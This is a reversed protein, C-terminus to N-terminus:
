PTMIADHFQFRIYRGEALLEGDRSLRGPVLGHSDGLPEDDRQLRGHSEGQELRQRCCGVLDGAVERWTRHIHPQLAPLRLEDHCRGGGLREGLSPLHRRWGASCRGWWGLSFVARHRPDGGAEGLMQLVPDLLGSVAAPQRDVAPEDPGGRGREVTVGGEAASSVASSGGGAALVEGAPDPLGAAARRPRGSIDGAGTAPGSVQVGPPLVMGANSVGSGIRAVISTVTPSRRMAARSRVSVTTSTRGLSGDWSGSTRAASCVRTSIVESPRRTFPGFCRPRGSKPLGPETSTLTSTGAPERSRASGPTAASRLVPRSASQRALIPAPSISRSLVPGASRVMPAPPMLMPMTLPLASIWELVPGTWSVSISPGATIRFALPSIQIPVTVPLRCSLALLPPMETSRASPSTVAFVALPLRRMPRTERPMVLRLVLMPSISIPMAAPVAASTSACVFSPLTRFPRAAVSRGSGASSVASTCARVDKPSM